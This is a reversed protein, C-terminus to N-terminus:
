YTMFYQHSIRATCVGTAGSLVQILHQGTATGTQANRRISFYSRANRSVSVLDTTAGDGTVELLEPTVSGIASGGGRIMLTSGVLVNSTNSPILAWSTFTPNQTMTFQPQTTGNSWVLQYYTVNTAAAQTIRLQQRIYFKDSPQVVYTSQLSAFNSATTSSLVIEGGTATISGTGSRQVTYGGVASGYAPITETGVLMARITLGAEGYLSAPVWTTVTGGGIAADVAVARLRYTSTAGSTPDTYRAFDGIATAGVGSPDTVTLDTISWVYGQTTAAFRLWAAGSWLYTVANPNYDSDTNVGAFAGARIPQAFTTMDAYSDFVGEDLEWASGSYQAVGFASGAGLSLVSARDGTRPEDITSLAAWDAVAPWVTSNGLPESSGSSILFPNKSGAYLTSIAM